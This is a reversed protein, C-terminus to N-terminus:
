SEGLNIIVLLGVSSKNQRAFLSVGDLKPDYTGPGPVFNQKQHELKRDTKSRFCSTM